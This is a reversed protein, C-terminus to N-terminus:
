TTRPIGRAPPAASHGGYAEGRRSHRSEGPEGPAFCGRRQRALRQVSSSAEGVAREHNVRRAAKTVM